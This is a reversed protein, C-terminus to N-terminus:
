RDNNTWVMFHFGRGRQCNNRLTDQCYMVCDYVLDADGVQKSCTEYETYPQTAITLTSRHMPRAGKRARPVTTSQRSRELYPQDTIVTVFHGQEALITAAKKGQGYRPPATVPAPNVQSSYDTLQDSMLM